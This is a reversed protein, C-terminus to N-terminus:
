MQVKTIHVRYQNSLHCFDIKTHLIQFLASDPEKKIGLTPDIFFLPPRPILFCFGEIATNSSNESNKRM